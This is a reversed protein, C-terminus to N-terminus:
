CEEKNKFTLIQNPEATIIIDNFDDFLLSLDIHIKKATQSINKLTFVNKKFNIEIGFSEMKLHTNEGCCPAISLDAERHPLVGFFDHILVDIFVNPYEYYRSAGHWKKQADKGTNYYVYNMDYREGMDYNEEIAREAVTELQNKITHWDGIKRRYKADHCWYRGAACLDYPGGVGIEFPTYDEIKAAVFSPFKQFIVDHKKIAGNVLRNKEDDNFGFTVSLANALLHVHDHIEGNKDVWDIYRKSDNDWYGDPTPKTYNDQMLHSYRLYKETKEGRDLMQELYAICNLSHIAFAQAQAAAGNKMVQDEYYVDAYLRGNEDILSLLLELGNEVSEINNEIFAKDKTLLFYNYMEECLETIGTVTFMQAKTKKNKSKRMVRYERKGNPQVACPIRSKGSPDTLMTKIQLLMMRRVLEIEAKGGMAMRGRIHFEHDVAPYTGAYKSIELTSLVYGDRWKKKKRMFSREAIEPLLHKWYFNLVANQFDKKGDVDIEIKNSQFDCDPLSAYHTQKVDDSFTVCFAGRKTKVEYKEATYLVSEKAEFDIAWLRTDGSFKKPQLHPSVVFTEGCVTQCAYLKKHKEINITLM